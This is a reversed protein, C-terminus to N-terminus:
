EEGGFLTGQVSEVQPQPERRGLDQQLWKVAGRAEAGYSCPGHGEDRRGTVYLALATDGKAARVPHILARCHVCPVELAMALVRLDNPTSAKLPFRSQNQSGIQADIYHRLRDWLPWAAIPPAVARAADRSVYRHGAPM